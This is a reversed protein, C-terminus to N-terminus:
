PLIFINVQIETKDHKNAKSLKRRQWDTWYIDDGLISVGFVHPLDKLIVQRDTGDLNICSIQDFKADGWYLKREVYDIALGNPWAITTNVLIKRNSGDLEAREIKAFTGWDTWYLYRYM